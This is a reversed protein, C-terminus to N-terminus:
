VSADLFLALAKNGSGAQANRRQVHHLDGEAAQLQFQIFTSLLGIRKELVTIRGVLQAPLPGLGEPPDWMPVVAPEGLRLQEEHVDLEDEIQTLAREWSNLGAM